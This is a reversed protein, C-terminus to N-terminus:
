LADAASIGLQRLRAPSLIAQVLKTAGDIRGWIYDNVRWSQRYFAGFHGLQVGALKSHVDDPAGFDNPANGSIQILQVEHEVEDPDATVMLTVVDVLLLRRICSQLPDSSEGSRPVIAGLLQQLRRVDNRERETAASRSAAEAAERLAPEAALLIRAMEEAITHLQQRLDINAKREPEDD